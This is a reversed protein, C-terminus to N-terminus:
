EPLGNGYAEAVGYSQFLAQAQRASERIQAETAHGHYYDYAWNEAFVCRELKRWGHQGAGCRSVVDDWRGQFDRAASGHGTQYFLLNAREGGYSTWFALEDGHWPDDPQVPYSAGTAREPVCWVGMVAEPSLRGQLWLLVDSLAKSPWSGGVEFGPSWVISNQLDELAPWLGAWVDGLIENWAGDGGDTMQVLPVFGQTLVQEILARFAAPDQRLDSPPIPSGPYSIFPQLIFHRLHAAHKRAYWDARQDPPLSALFPDFIVRGLADRAGCFNARINLVEDRTPRWLAASLAAAPSNM